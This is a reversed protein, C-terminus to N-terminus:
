PGAADDGCCPNQCCGEVALGDPLMYQGSRRDGIAISVGVPTSAVAIPEDLDASLGGCLTRTETTVTTSACAMSYAFASGALPTYDTTVDPGNLPHAGCIIDGDEDTLPVDFRLYPWRANPPTRGDVLPAPTATAQATIRCNAGLNAEDLGLAVNWYCKQVDTFGERGRYAATQYLLPPVAGMNGPGNAPNVWARVGGDCEVLLDNYHLHTDEGPGATCAWAVVATRERDGGPVHLLKLPEGDETVCDVKASCFIDSFNVAIDFFGQQADRLVTLDLQVQADGNNPCVVEVSVPTPNRWTSVPIEVGGAYLADLTLTLRNPNSSADCAGVYSFSGAGDGYQSSRLDGRSWVPEGAANEVLVGWASDTVGDLELPAVEIAVGPGDFGREDVPVTGDGQQGCAALLGAAALAVAPGRWAAGFIFPLGRM